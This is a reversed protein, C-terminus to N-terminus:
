NGNESTFLGQMGDSDTTKNALHRRLTHQKNPVPKRFINRCGTSM